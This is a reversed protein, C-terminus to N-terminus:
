DEASVGGKGGKLMSSFYWSAEGHRVRCGEYDRILDHAWYAGDRGGNEGGDDGGGGVRGSEGVVKEWGGSGEVCDLCLGDFYGLVEERAEAVVRRWAERSCACRDGGSVSAGGALGDDEGIVAPNEGDFAGLRDLVANLSMSELAGDLPWVGIRELESLYAAVHQEKSHCRSSTTSKLLSGARSLLASHLTDRLHHKATKLQSIMGRPLGLGDDGGDDCDEIKGVSEYVVRKTVVRLGEANNFVYCLGLLGPGRIMEEVPVVTPHVNSALWEGFWGGLQEAGGYRVCCRAINQVDRLELPPLDRQRQSRLQSLSLPDSHILRLWAEITRFRENPLTLKDKNNNNKTIAVPTEGQKPDPTIPTTTTLKERFYTSYQTLINKDVHICSRVSEDAEIIELTLNGPDRLHISRNYNAM